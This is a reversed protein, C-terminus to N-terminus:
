VRLAQLGPVWFGLIRSGLTPAETILHPSEPNRRVIKPLISGLVRSSDYFTRVTSGKM